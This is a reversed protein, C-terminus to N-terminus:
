TNHHQSLRPQLLSVVRVLDNIMDNLLADAIQYALNYGLDIM